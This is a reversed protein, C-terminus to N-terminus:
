AARKRAKPRPLAPSPLVYKIHHYPSEVWLYKSYLHKVLPWADTRDDASVARLGIRQAEDLDIVSDHEHYSYVLTRSIEAASKASFGGIRLLEKAYREAM